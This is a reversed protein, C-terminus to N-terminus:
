ARRASRVTDTRWVRMARAVVGIEVPTPGIV